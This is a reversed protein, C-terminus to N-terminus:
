CDVIAVNGTAEVAEGYKKSCGHFNLEHAMLMLDNRLSRKLWAPTDKITDYLDELTTLAIDTDPPIYPVLMKTHDDESEVRQM